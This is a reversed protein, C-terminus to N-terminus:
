VQNAADVLRFPTAWVMVNNKGAAVLATYQAQIAADAAATTNTRVMQVTVANAAPISVNTTGWSAKIEYGLVVAM